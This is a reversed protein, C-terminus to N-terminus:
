FLSWLRAPTPRKLPSRPADHSDSVQSQVDLTALNKKYHDIRGEFIHQPILNLHPCRPTTGSLSTRISTPPLLVLAYVSHFYEHTGYDLSCACASAGDLLSLTLSTAMAPQGLRSDVSRPGIDSSRLFADWSAAINDVPDEQRPVIALAASSPALSFESFRHPPRPPAPYPRAHHDSHFSPSKSSDTHATYLPRTLRGLSWLLPLARM